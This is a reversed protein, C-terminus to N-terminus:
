KMIRKWCWSDSSFLSSFFVKSSVSISLSLLSIDYRDHSNISLTVSLSICSKKFIGHPCLKYIKFVLMQSGSKISLFRHFLFLSFLSLFFLICFILAIKFVKCFFFVLYLLFFVLLFFSLLRWFLFLSFRISPVHDCLFFFKRPWYIQHVFRKKKGGFWCKWGVACM